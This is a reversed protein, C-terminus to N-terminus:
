DTRKLQDLVGDLTFSAWCSRALNHGDGSWRANVVKLGKEQVREVAPIFDADSTLLIAVDYAGEWALSLLDTAIATDVGKEVARQFGQGCSPCDKTTTGCAVCHISSNRLRQDRVSVKFSPQQDLWDHLWRSLKADTRPKVSAYVLTEDLTLTTEPNVRQLVSEAESVLVTPLLTWDTNAGGARQKWNISFNWFDVFIRANM